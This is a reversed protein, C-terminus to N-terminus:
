YRKLYSLDIKLVELLKITRMDNPFLMTKGTVYRSVTGPRVGLRRALERQTIGLERCRRVIPHPRDIVLKPGPNVNEM